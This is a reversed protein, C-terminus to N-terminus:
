EAFLIDEVKTCLEESMLEKIEWMDIIPFASGTGKNLYEIM